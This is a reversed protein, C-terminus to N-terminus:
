QEDQIVTAEVFKETTAPRSFQRIRLHDSNLPTKKRERFTWLLYAQLYSSPSLRLESGVVQRLGRRPRVLLPGRLCSRPSGGEVTLVNSVHPMVSPPNGHYCAM